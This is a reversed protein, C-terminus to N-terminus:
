VKSYCSTPGGQMTPGIINILGRTLEYTTLCTNYYYYNCLNPIFFIIFWKKKVYMYRFDLNEYFIKKPHIKFLIIIVIDKVGKPRFILFDDGYFIFGRSMSPSKAVLVL